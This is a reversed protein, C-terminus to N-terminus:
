LDRELKNLIRPIVAFISDSIYLVFRQFASEAYCVNIFSAVIQMYALITFIM